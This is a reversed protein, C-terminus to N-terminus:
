NEFDNMGVAGDQPKGFVLLKTRGESVGDTLSKVLCIFELQDKLQVDTVTLVVEGTAVTVNVMIRDTFPTNREVMQTTADQFYINHKEGTKSVQSIPIPTSWVRTIAYNNRINTKIHSTLFSVYFWQITLAGIGDDSTFMSTIQATEGKFVEVRDEM